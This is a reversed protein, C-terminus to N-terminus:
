QPDALEVASVQLRLGVDDNEQPRQTGRPPPGGDDEGNPGVSYVILWSDDTRKTRLPADTTFPDLPVAPLYDPVLATASEPLSGSALRFRTAAVLVEAARHFVRGKSETVFVRGLAPLMLKGFMGAKGREADREIEAIREKIPPFPQTRDGAITRYEQLMERYGALEAPMVFCRFSFGMLRTLRGDEGTLGLLIAGQEALLAITSIGFAEEGYFHRQYSVPTGLFDTFAPDDLLPLEQKGIAPLVAALTELANQDIAQGVLGAILIPESAAHMGLRHIRVVDRLATAMKGSAAERRAALALIDWSKRMSSFEPLTMDLSPRSWDRVFRCGPKDAARRLLELTAAHRALIAAVEEAAMDATLPDDLPSKPDSFEKDAEIASFARQYLPAADDDPAPAPPMSAAIIEAAEARLSRTQVLADHDISVLTGYTTVDAALAMAALGFVPWANAVFGAGSAPRSLGARYIWWGGIATSLFATITPAFWNTPWGLGFAVYATVGVAPLLALPALLVGSAVLLRRLWPRETRVALAVSAAAWFLCGAILAWFFLLHAM